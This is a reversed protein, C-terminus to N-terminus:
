KQDGDSCRLWVDNRTRMVCRSAWWWWGMERVTSLHQCGPHVLPLSIKPVKSTDGRWWIVVLGVFSNDKSVNDCPEESLHTKEIRRGRHSLISASILECGSFGFCCDYSVEVFPLGTESNGKASLSVNVYSGDKGSVSSQKTSVETSSTNIEVVVQLVKINIMFSSLPTDVVPLDGRGKFLVVYSILLYQISRDAVWQASTKVVTECIVAKSDSCRRLRFGPIDEREDSLRVWAWGKWREESGVARV